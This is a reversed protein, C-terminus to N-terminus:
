LKRFLASGRVARALNLPGGPLHAQRHAPVAGLHYLKRYPLMMVGAVGSKKSARLEEMPLMVCRFTILPLLHMDRTALVSSNCALWTQPWM